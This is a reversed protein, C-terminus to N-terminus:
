AVVFIGKQFTYKNLENANCMSIEIHGKPEFVKYVKKLISSGRHGPSVQLLELQGGRTLQPHLEKSGNPAWVESLQLGLPLQLAAGLTIRGVLGVVSGSFSPGVGWGVLVAGWCIPGLWAVPDTLNLPPREALPGLPLPM